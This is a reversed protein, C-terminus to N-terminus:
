VWPVIAHLNVVLLVFGPIFLFTELGFPVAAWIAVPIFLPLHHAFQIVNKAICRWVILSLPRDSNHLASGAASFVGCSDVITGSIFGWFIIGLTWDSAATTM